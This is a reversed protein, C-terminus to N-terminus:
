VSWCGPFWEPSPDGGKFGVWLHLGIERGDSVWQEVADEVKPSRLVEEHDIGDLRVLVCVLNPLVNQSKWSLVERLIQTSWNLDGNFLRNDVGLHISLTRTTSPLQSILSAGPWSGICLNKVVSMPLCEDLLPELSGPGIRLDQVGGLSTPGSTPFRDSHPQRGWLSLSKLSPPLNELIYRFPVNFITNGIEARRDIHETKCDFVLARLNRSAEFVHQMCLCLSDGERGDCSKMEVDRLELYDLRDLINAVRDLTADDVQTEDCDPCNRLTLRRLNSLGSVLEWVRDMMQTADNWSRPLGEQGHDGDEALLYYEMRARNIVVNKVWSSVSPDTAVRSVRMIDRAADEEFLTWKRSTRCHDLWRAQSATVAVSLSTAPGERFRDLPLRRYVSRRWSVHLDRYLVAEAAEWWERCVLAASFLDANVDFFSTELDHLYSFIKLLIENPLTLSRTHRSVM